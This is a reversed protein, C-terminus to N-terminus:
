ECGRIAKWAAIPDDLANWGDAAMSTILDLSDALSSTMDLALFSRVEGEGYRPLWGDETREWQGDVQMSVMGDNVYAAMDHALGPERVRVKIDRNRYDRVYLYSSGNTEAQGTIFGRVESTLRVPPARDSSHHCPALNPTM